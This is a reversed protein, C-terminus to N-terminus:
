WLPNCRYDGTDRSRKVASNAAFTCEDFVEPIGWVGWVLKRCSPCRNPGMRLWCYGFAIIAFITTLLITSLMQGVIEQIM